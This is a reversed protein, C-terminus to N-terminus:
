RLLCKALGSAPNKRASSEYSRAARRIPGFACYQFEAFPVDNMTALFRVDLIPKADVDGQLGLEDVREASRNYKEIVKAADDVAIDNGKDTCRHYTLISYVVGNFHDKSPDYYDVLEQILSFLLSTTWHAGIHANHM